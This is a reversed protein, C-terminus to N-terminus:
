RYGAAPIINRATGGSRTGAACAACGGPGLGTFRIIEDIEVPTTGLADVIRSRDSDDADASIIADNEQERRSRRHRAPSCRSPRPSSTRSRRSSSYRWGQHAPQHRRRAPRAALRPRRLRPTGTGRCATRHHPLRLPPRGRRHRRWGLHRLYHPQPTPFDRARPEWNMPMESVHVGGREIIETALGINEPPHPATLDAPLSPSPEAPLRRRTRRPTSAERWDRLGRRIRGEGLGAALQMAFKRGAISANRSGVVAVAPRALCGGMAAFRSFRRLATSPGCGRPINRRASQSSVPARLNLQPSNANPM